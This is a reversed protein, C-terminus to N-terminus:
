SKAPGHCLLITYLVFPTELKLMFFFVRSYRWLRLRRAFTANAVIHLLLGLTSETETVYPYLHVCVDHGQFKNGM